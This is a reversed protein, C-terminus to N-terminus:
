ISEIENNKFSADVNLFQLLGAAYGTLNNFKQIGLHDRYSKIIVEWPVEMFSAAGYIMIGVPHSGSLSFLKNASNYVKQIGDRGSTIASDAALSMGKKNMIVVESTM